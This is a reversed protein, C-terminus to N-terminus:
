AIGNRGVMEGPQQRSRARALVRIALLRFQFAVRTPCVNIAFASAVVAEGREGCGLYYKIGGATGFQVREGRQAATHAHGTKGCFGAGCPHIPADIYFIIGYVFVAVMVGVICFHIGSLVKPM